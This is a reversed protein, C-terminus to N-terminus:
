VARGVIGNFGQGLIGIKSGVTGVNPLAGVFAPLRANLSYFVGCAGTKCPSVNGGGGQYTDGYLIGNTHQIPVAEPAGGETLTFDYLPSLVYKTTMQFITGAGQGKGQGGGGNAGYFNGDSAQIVGEYPADGDTSPTMSRLLRFVGSFSIKFVVGGYYRGYDGTTGYLFGDSAQVLPGFPHGGDSIDFSHLVTFVGAPTIKFVEGYGNVGGLLTTGYFNGDSGQVLPDYPADGDTNDFSHL